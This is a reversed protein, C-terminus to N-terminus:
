GYTLTQELITNNVQYKVNINIQYKTNVQNISIDVNLLDIGSILQMSTKIYNALLVYPIKGALVDEFPLGRNTDLPNQGLQLLLEQQVLQAYYDTDKVSSDKTLKIDNNELVLGQKLDIYIGKM